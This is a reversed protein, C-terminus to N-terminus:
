EAHLQPESCTSKVTQIGHLSLVKTNLLDDTVTVTHCMCVCICISVYVYVWAYVSDTLFQSLILIRLWPHLSAANSLYLSFIKQLGSAVLCQLIHKPSKVLCHQWCCQLLKGICNLWMQLRSTELSCLFSSITSVLDCRQSTLFSHWSNHFEWILLCAPWICALSIEPTKLLPLCFSLYLESEFPAPHQLIGM